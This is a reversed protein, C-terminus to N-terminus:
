LYAVAITTQAHDLAMVRYLAKHLPAILAFRGEAAFQRFTKVTSFGVLKMAAFLDAVPWPRVHAVEIRWVHNPHDANPTSVILRGGPNLLGHAHELFCIGADADMHELLEFMLIADFTDSIELFNRYEHQYRKDLDASAYVASVGLDRLVQEYRRDGAGVDLVTKAQQLEVKLLEGARGVKQPLRERWTPKIRLYESGEFAQKFELFEWYNDTLNPMHCAYGTDIV